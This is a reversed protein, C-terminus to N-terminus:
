WLEPQRELDAEEHEACRALRPNGGHARLKCAGLVRVRVCNFVAHVHVRTGGERRGTAFTMSTTYCVCVCACM